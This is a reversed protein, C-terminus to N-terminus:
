MLNQTNVTDGKEFDLDLHPPPPSSLDAVNKYPSIHNFNVPHKLLDGNPKKLRYSDNPGIEEIIFPGEWAPEFKGVIQNPLRRKVLKVFEGIKFSKEKVNKALDHREAMQRAQKNSNFLAAARAQGLLTLERMTFATRDSKDSFDFAAPPETTGPLKPQFGYALYFPSYGTVTHKRANLNLISSDLFKNWLSENGACFKKLISELIGNVREVLGNTQPHYSTSSYHIIGNKHCYRKFEHGLFASARDTIITSPAGYQCMLLHVFKVSDLADRSPFAKAFTIRTARDTAVAIQSNGESLPLDQIWDIHWTHFPVGPDPLSHMPHKIRQRDADSMQCIHCRAIFNKYDPEMGPWWWRLRLSEFTSSTKLHGMVEHLEKMKSIRFREQLYPIWLPQKNFYIKKLLTDNHLKFKSALKKILSQFNAPLTQPLPLQKHHYLYFIPWVKGTTLAPDQLAKGELSEHPISEKRLDRLDQLEEVSPEPGELVSNVFLKKPLLISSQKGKEGGYDARRSFADPVINTEGPIHKLEFNFDALFEQWRSQRRNLQRKSSYFLLNKHDTRIEIPDKTGILLPRWYELAAKISLLEKDNIPYNIESKELKRSYFGVPCEVGEFIQSLVAGMAVDSADCALFFKSGRDPFRLLNAKRIQNKLDLFSKNCLQNWMFVAGKKLLLYLPAALTSFSHIFSRYYNMIGLFSQVQKVNRPTPFDLIPKLKDEIPSIGAKSVNFGLFQVSIQEFLCKELSAVLGAKRLRDLVTKILERHRVPDKEYILIDDIYVWIGCGYLDGFIKNMQSQFFGPADSIGFPIVKYKFRGYKTVFTTLDESEPHMRLQHFANKLDIKSFRDSGGGLSSLIDSINPLIAPMVETIANLSRYDVCMRLSGDPKKIFLVPCGTTSLSEVVKGNKSEFLVERLAADEASSLSYPLSSKPPNTGLKLKIKLATSENFEPLQNLNELNFVEKYDSLYEPLSETTESPSLSCIKIVEKNKLRASYIDYQFKKSEKMLDAFSILFVSKSSNKSNIKGKDQRQPPQDRVEMLGGNKHKVATALNKDVTKMRRKDSSSCNSQKSLINSFSTDQRQPPQDRVEMPGGKLIKLSRNGCDIHVNQSELWGLGILVDNTCNELILFEDEYLHSNIIFKLIVTQSVIEATHGAFSRVHIPRIRRFLKLSDNICNLSNRSIFLRGLAGTDVLAKCSVNSRHFKLTVTLASIASNSSPYDLSLVYASDVKNNGYLASLDLDKLKCMSISTHGNAVYDRCSPCISAKRMAEKFDKYVDVPIRTWPARHSANVSLSVQSLDMPDDMSQINEQVNISENGLLWNKILPYNSGLLPNSLAAKKLEKRLTPTLSFIFEKVCESGIHSSQARLSEFHTIHAKINKTGQKLVHLAADAEEEANRNSWLNKFLEHFITWDELEPVHAGKLRQTYLATMWKRPAGILRTFVYNIRLVSDEYRNGMSSFYREVDVLFDVFNGPSGDYKEVDPVKINNERPAAITDQRSGFIPKTLNSLQNNMQNMAQSVSLLSNELAVQRTHLENMQTAQNHFAELHSPTPSMVRDDDNQSM